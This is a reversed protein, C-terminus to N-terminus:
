WSSWSPAPAVGATVADVLTEGRPTLRYAVAKGDRRSRALGAGRMRRVHHSVIKDQRGCLRALDGVCLEGRRRLAVALLLRTPDSLAGAEAAARELLGPAPLDHPPDTM